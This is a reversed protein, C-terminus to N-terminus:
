FQVLGDPVNFFGLAGKLATFKLECADALVFGHPGFFWPSTSQTVSDRITVKGVIGGRPLSDRDPLKIHRLRPDVLLMVAVDEYEQHTMGQSAHVLVEGRLKTPWSRNEIDKFNNVILWAWPQRISLAKM